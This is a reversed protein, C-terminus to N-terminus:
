KSFIPLNVVIRTGTKNESSLDIIILDLTKKSQKEWLRRRKEFIDMALSHHEKNNQSKVANIGPGNDEIIVQITDDIEKILLKLKGDKGKSKLGHKIANEVFPQIAMPPINIFETELNDDVAISYVFEYGKRMRELEIYSRIIELEDSLPISEKGSYELILRAISSFKGLYFSAKQSENKLVFNQISALANFIFHPNMQTRFLQQKLQTERLDSKLKNLRSIIVIMIMVILLVIIILIGLRIKQDYIKTKALLLEITQEKKKTSYRTEIDAIKIRVNKDRLKNEYNRLSDNWIFAYNYQKLTVYLEYLLQFTRLKEEAYNGLQPKNLNKKVYFLAKKYNGKEKYLLAKRNNSVIINYPNETPIKGAENISELAMELKGGLQFIYARNELAKRKGNLYGIRDSVLMLTDYYKLAAATDGEWKKVNGMQNYIIAKEMPTACNQYHSLKYAKTIYYKWKPWNRVANSIEGAKIFFFALHSSDKTKEKLRLAKVIYNMGKKYDGMEKYNDGLNLLVAAIRASDKIQEAAQLSIFYYYNSSDQEGLDWYEGALDNGITAIAKKNGLKEALMLSEKFYESARKQEGRKSLLLGFKYYLRTLNLTDSPSNNLKKVNKFYQELPNPAIQLVIEVANLEYPIAEKYKGQKQLIYSMREYTRVMGALNHKEKQKQLKKEFVLFALNYEGQNIFATAMSDYNIDPLKEIKNISDAKNFNYKKDASYNEASLMNPM